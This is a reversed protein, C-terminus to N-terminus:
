GEYGLVIKKTERKRKYNSPQLFVTELLTKRFM